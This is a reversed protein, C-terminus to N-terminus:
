WVDNQVRSSVTGGAIDLGQQVGESSGKLVHKRSTQLGLNITEAQHRTLQSSHHGKMQGQCICGRGAGTQEFDHQLHKVARGSHQGRQMERKVDYMLQIDRKEEIGVHVKKERRIGNRQHLHKLVLSM